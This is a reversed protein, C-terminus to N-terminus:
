GSNPTTGPGFRRLWEAVEAHRADGPPVIEALTRRVYEGDLDKATAILAHVDPVDKARHWLMKLVVLDEVSVFPVSVGGVVHSEARELVARHYPLAPVLIEV